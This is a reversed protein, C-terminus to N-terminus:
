MWGRRGSFISWHWLSPTLRPPGASHEGQVQLRLGEKAGLLGRPCLVVCPPVSLIVSVQETVTQFNSDLILICLQAGEPPM